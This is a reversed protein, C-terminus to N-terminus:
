RVGFVTKDYLFKSKFYNQEVKQSAKQERQRRLHRWRLEGCAERTEDWSWVAPADEAEAETAASTADLVFDFNQKKKLILNRAFGIKSLIKIDFSSKLGNKTMIKRKELKKRGFKFKEEVQKQQIAAAIKM